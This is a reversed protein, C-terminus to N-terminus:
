FLDEDIFFPCEKEAEDSICLEGPCMPLEIIRCEKGCCKWRNPVTDPHQSAYAMLIKVSEIFERLTVSTRGAFLNQENSRGLTTNRLFDRVKISAERTGGKKCRYQELVTDLEKRNM